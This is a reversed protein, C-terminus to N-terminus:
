NCNCFLQDITMQSLTYIFNTLSGLQVACQVWFLCLLLCILSYPHYVSFKLIVRISKQCNYWFLESVILFFYLRILSFFSSTPVFEFSICMWKFFLTLKVHKGKSGTIRCTKASKSWIQKTNHKILTITIVIGNESWIRVISSFKITKDPIFMFNQRFTFDTAYVECLLLYHRMRNMNSM